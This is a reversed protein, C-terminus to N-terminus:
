KLVKLQEKLDALEKDRRHYGTDNILKEAKDVHEQIKNLPEKGEAILLRSMELHFDGQILKLNYATSLDDVEKLYSRAKTFSKRTNLPCGWNKALELYFRAIHNKSNAKLIHNGGEELVILADDFAHEKRFLVGLSLWYLSKSFDGFVEISLNLGYYARQFLEKMDLDFDILFELYFFGQAAYLYPFEYVDKQTNEAKKFCENAIEFDGSQHLVYGITFYYYLFGQYTTCEIYKFHETLIHLAERIRGGDIYFFVLNSLAVMSGQWDDAQMYGTIAFKMLEEAESRGLVGLCYSARNAVTTRSYENLEQNISLWLESFFNAVVALEDAYGGLHYWIHSENAAIKGWYVEDYTQQHLGARCGHAVAHFLPQMEELTDPFEKEPLSKYHEYLRAHAARWVEPQEEELRKGFYERILPHCDLEEVGVREALLQYEHRLSEIAEWWDGEDINATLDPIQAEWLVRLVEIEIPHDFLGLLSLLALETQGAFYEAYAQIVKFAHQNERNKSTTVLSKLTLRKHVDGQYRIRLLNGLLSLALAHCGYETVAQELEDKRGKVGLSELLQVGDELALNHLDHSIVHARDCLEHVAIRTTIICLGVGAGSLHKLLARLARDKLEGRNAKDVYQMPELGDLVLM